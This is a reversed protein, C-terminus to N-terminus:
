IPKKVVLDYNIEVSKLLVCVYVRACAYYACFMFCSPHM